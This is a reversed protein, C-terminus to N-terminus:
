GLSIGDMEDMQGVADAKGLAGHLFTYTLSSFVSIALLYMLPLQPCSECHLILLFGGEHISSDM